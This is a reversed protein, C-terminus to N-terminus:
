DEHIQYVVKMQKFLVSRRLVGSDLEVHYFGTQHDYGCVVGNQDDDDANPLMSPIRVRRGIFYGEWGGDAGRSSLGAWESTTEYPTIYSEEVGYKLVYNGLDVLYTEFVEDYEVVTGLSTSGNSREVLVRDGVYHVGAPPAEPPEDNDPDPLDDAPLVTVNEIRIGVDPHMGDIAVLLLDREANYSRVLGKRGNLLGKGVLGHLAVRHGILEKPSGTTPLPEEEEPPPLDIVISDGPGCGEPVGVCFQGGGLNVTFEDGSFCGDPIIVTAPSAPVEDHAATRGTDFHEDVPLDVDIADGGQVGPPVTLTFEEAGYSVSM